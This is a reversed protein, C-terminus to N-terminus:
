AKKPMPSSSVFPTACVVAEVPKERIIVSIPTGVKAAALPVYAMGIPADLTPSHTGSTVVGDGFDTTIPYGHRPVGRATLKFGVLRRKPKEEKQRVLVDRGIFDGKDLKVAWGLSADYPTTTDDIDNGYLPYKMELRLTDRAGLGVPKIGHPAGHDLLTNWLTPGTEAPIYLEFGPEGTYGTRSIITKIGAVEGAAYHYYAIENLPTKTLPQLITEAFPGQLALQAYDASTNTVSLGPGSINARFWAFDKDTNSANVCIFVYDDTSRYAILDDVCGGDPNMLPSYVCQGPKAAALDNCLLRNVAALAGPGRVEIEGMHSVDFLGAATRTALHEQRLGEYQVPMEWGGFDVMRAKAALHCSYLPTRKLTAASAPSDASM